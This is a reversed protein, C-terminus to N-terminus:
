PGSAEKGGTPMCRGFEPLVQRMHILEALLAKDNRFPTDGCNAWHLLGDRGILFTGHLLDDPQSGKGARFVGYRQAVAHGPDSLVPFGVAGYSEFRQRTKEPPDGSVAVVEAGLSRFRQIDANLEFLDHVCAVCEFSVYFVLIVPGRELQCHLSWHQDRHDLLRVDPAAHELLLHPQSDVRLTAAADFMERQWDGASARRDDALLKALIDYHVKGTLHGSSKKVQTAAAAQTTRLPTAIQSRQWRQLRWAAAAGGLIALAAGCFLLTASTRPSFRSITKM